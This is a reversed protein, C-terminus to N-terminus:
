TKSFYNMFLCENRHIAMNQSPNKSLKIPAGKILVAPTQEDAEGLLLQAASVLDDAIARFTIQLKRGFLDERGRCDEIPEMGAVSIAVGITGRRLPQVRSDGVIVAIKKHFKAELIQKILEASKQPDKPFLVLHGPPANSSDVGANAILTNNKITLLVGKVGGLVEDAEQIVIEVVRPDMEYRKALDIAKESPDVSALDVTQGEAMALPSEAVVIVDGEDISINLKQITEFLVEGISDGKQIIPTKLPILTIQTM